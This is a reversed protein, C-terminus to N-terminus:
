KKSAQKKLGFYQLEAFAAVVIAQLIAWVTGLTTAELWGALLAIISAIPWLVNVVIIAKVASPNIPKKGAILLIEIVFIALFIGAGIQVGVPYGLHENIISSAVLYALANVGTVIADLYLVNKLFNSNTNM